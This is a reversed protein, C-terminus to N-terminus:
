LIITGLETMTFYIHCIKPFPFQKAGWRHLARAIDMRFLTWEVDNKDEIDDDEDEDEYWIM